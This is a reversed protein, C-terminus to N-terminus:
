KDISTQHYKGPRMIKIIPILITKKQILYQYINNNDTYTSSRTNQSQRSTAISPPIFRSTQDITNRNNGVIIRKVLSAGKLFLDESYGSEVMTQYIRIKM